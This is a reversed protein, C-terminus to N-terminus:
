SMRIFSIKKIKKKLVINYELNSFSYINLFIIKNLLKNLVEYKTLLFVLEDTLNYDYKQTQQIRLFLRKSILGDNNIVITVSDTFLYLKNRLILSFAHNLNNNTGTNKINEDWNWEFM